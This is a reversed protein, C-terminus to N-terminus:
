EPTTQQKILDPLFNDVSFTGHKNGYGSSLREAVINKDITIYTKSIWATYLKLTGPWAAHVTYNYAYDIYAHIPDCKGIVVCAIGSM